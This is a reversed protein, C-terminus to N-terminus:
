AMWGAPPISHLTRGAVLAYGKHRRSRRNHRSAPAEWAAIVLM